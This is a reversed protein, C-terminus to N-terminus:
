DELAKNWAALLQTASEGDDGGAAIMLKLRDRVDAPAAGVSRILARRKAADETPDDDIEAMIRSYLYRFWMTRKAPPVTVFNKALTTLVMANPADDGLEKQYLPPDLLYYGLAIDDDPSTRPSQIADRLLEVAEARSVFKKATIATCAYRRLIDKGTILAEALRAKRDASAPPTAQIAIAAKTEAVDRSTPESQPAGGRLSYLGNPTDIPVWAVLLLGGPELPLTNWANAGNNLRQELDALRVFQFSVKAGPPPTDPRLTARVTARCLGSEWDGDVRSEVGAVELLVFGFSPEFVLPALDGSIPRVDPFM